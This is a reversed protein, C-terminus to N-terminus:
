FEIQQVLSKLSVIKVEPLDIKAAEPCSDSVFIKKVGFDFLLWWKTGQFIGHTAVIIIERTGKSRLIKCASLLTQGSDLIDDVLIVRKGVDGVLAKHVIGDHHEKTFHAVVGRYGAALSLDNARVIAGEDPAVIAADDWGMKKIEAAFINAPSISKLSLGLLRKDLDSHVDVSIIKSIKSSKLLAGIALIGSSAFAQPKDQRSYGLYPLFARVSKAGSHNLADALMVVELFQEAPPAISGVILCDQDTVPSVIEVYIEGNLFHKVECKGVKLQPPLFKKFYDQAAFVIM